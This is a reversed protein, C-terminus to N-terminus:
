VHIFAVSILTLLSFILVFVYLAILYFTKKDSQLKVLMDYLDEGYIRDFEDYELGENKGNFDYPNPNGETYYSVAKLKGDIVKTFTCNPKIIYTDPGERFRKSAKIYRIREQRNGKIIYATLFNEKARIKKMPNKGM